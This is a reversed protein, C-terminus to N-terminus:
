RPAFRSEGALGKREFREAGCEKGRTPLCALLQAGDLASQREWLTLRFLNKQQSLREGQAKISEMAM